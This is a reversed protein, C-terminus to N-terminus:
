RGQNFWKGKRRRVTNTFLNKQVRKLHGLTLDASVGIRRRGYISCFLFPFLLAFLVIGFFSVKPSSGMQRMNLSCSAPNGPGPPGSIAWRLDFIAWFRVKSCLSLNLFRGFGLFQAKLANKNVIKEVWFESFDVLFTLNTSKISWRADSRVCRVYLAPTSSLPLSSSLSDGRQLRERRRRGTLSSSSPSPPVRRRHPRHPRRGGGRLGLLGVGVAAPCRGGGRVYYDSSKEREERRRLTPEFTGRM